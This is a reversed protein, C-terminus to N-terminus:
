HMLHRADVWCPLFSSSRVYVTAPRIRRASDIEFNKNLPLLFFTWPNVPLFRLNKETYLNEGAQECALNKDKKALIDEITTDAAAAVEQRSVTPEFFPEGMIGCDITVATHGRKEILQRVYQMESGKTDLTGVLVIKKSM